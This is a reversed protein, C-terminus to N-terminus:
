TLWKLARYARAAGPHLPVGGFELAAAGQRKLPEFLDKLGAFLPNMTPLRDVNAAVTKAMDHVVPEAVRQHSVLVNVVAIQPIDDVVGRFIGKKMVVPRYFPVHALLKELQEPAYPVVRVDARRSLETMVRNPIPPQFQADIRGAMLAEAGAAFSLHVPTFSEFPIELAAFITRVHQEMGSGEPGVAIRKGPFDAVSRIESGALNIFFMPGANVPAVMRLAIRRKFPLVGGHARGIWNSAMFGFELQGDELQEANHISADTTQVVCRESEPRGVNYLEAIAAGQTYFTGGFESTGMRVAM